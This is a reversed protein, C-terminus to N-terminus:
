PQLSFQEWNFSSDSLYEQLESSFYTPWGFIMMYYGKLIRNTALKTM